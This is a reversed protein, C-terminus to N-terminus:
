ILFGEKENTVLDVISRYPTSIIANKYAMAEIISVPQGENVYYTPLVFVDAQELLKIKEEEFVPGLFNINERNKLTNISNKFSSTLQKENTKMPDDPSLYVNGAFVCSFNM